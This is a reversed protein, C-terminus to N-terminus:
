IHLNDNTQEYAHFACNLMTVFNVRGHFASADRNGMLRFFPYEFNNQIIPCHYKASIHEWLGYFKEKISNRKQLVTEKSDSMDPFETINRICTCIYILDPSFSELELNPFMGDEYYKNYESEYFTPKIGNNLLFLELMLKINQTTEGGLIAIKKEIFSKTIDALLAKKLKIKQKLLKEPEFPYELEKM